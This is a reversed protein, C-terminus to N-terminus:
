EEGAKRPRISEYALAYTVEVQNRTFYFLVVQGVLSLIYFLFFSIDQSWPLSINLVQVIMDGYCIVALVLQLLYYWWFSLDLKFLDFCNYRMMVRSLRMATFAGVKPEDLLIYNTMRFWYTIPVLAVAYLVGCIILAPIYAKAIAATTAEDLVIGSQLATSDSLYPTLLEMLETAAPTFLFLQVGFYLAIFALGMYVIGQLIMARLLPGWRRFGQLLSAPAVSEQRAIKLAVFLIGMEWFPLVFLQVLQLVSQATSLVSRLGIGSLGGTGSIQQNLFYNIVSLLLLIGASAATHILILKKPDYAAGSLATRASNKLEPRNRLDM